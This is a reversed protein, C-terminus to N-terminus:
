GGKSAILFAYKSVAFLIIQTSVDGLALKGLSTKAASYTDESGVGTFKADEAAAMVM